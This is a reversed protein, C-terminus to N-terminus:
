RIESAVRLRHWLWDLQMVHTRSRTHTLYTVFCRTLAHTGHESGPEAAAVHERWFGNVHSYFEVLSTSALLPATRCCVRVRLGISDILWDAEADITPTATTM